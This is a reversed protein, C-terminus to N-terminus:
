IKYSGCCKLMSTDYINKTLNLVNRRHVIEPNKKTDPSVRSVSNEEM